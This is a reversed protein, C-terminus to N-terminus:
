GKSPLLQGDVIRSKFEALIGDIERRGEAYDRLQAMVEADPELGELRQNALANNVASHRTAREIDTLPLNALFDNSQHEM